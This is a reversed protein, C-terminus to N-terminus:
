LIKFNLPPNHNHFTIVLIKYITLAIFLELHFDLFDNVKYNEM